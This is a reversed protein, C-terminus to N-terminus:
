RQLASSTLGGANLDIFGSLIQASAIVDGRYTKAEEDTFKHYILTRIQHLSTFLLHRLKQLVSLM